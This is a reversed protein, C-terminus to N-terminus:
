TLISHIEDWKNQSEMKLRTTDYENEFKKWFLHILNDACTVQFPTKCSNIAKKVWDFTSAQEEQQTM